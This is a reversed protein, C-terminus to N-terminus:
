FTITNSAIVIQDTSPSFKVRNDITLVEGSFKNVSPLIVSNITFNAGEKGITDGASLVTNDLYGLLIADNNADYDEYKSIVLFRNSDKTLIDNIAISGFGAQSNSGIALIASSGIGLRLNTRSNFGKPNKVLCVQRFSNDIAQRYITDKFLTTRFLITKAYLESIADSGHGDKPPLVVDLVADETAFGDIVATAITYGVGANIVNIKRISGFDDLEAEVEAGSGDGIITVTPTGVYGFGRNKLYVAYIAGPIATIEVTSQNSEISGVGFDLLISAEQFGPQFQTDFDSDVTVSAYTYGIGPKVVRIQEIEGNSNIIPAIEANNKRTNVRFEFGSGPTVTLNTQEYRVVNSANPNSTVSVFQNSYGYGQNDITVGTAVGDTIEVTAIAKIGNPLDPDTFLLTISEYGDGGNIIDISEVVYPNEELYGDGDVVLNTYSFGTNEIIPEIIAEVSSVGTLTFVPPYSYGDGPESMAISTIIGEVVTVTGVVAPTGTEQHPLEIAITPSGTYGSGGNLIRFGTVAYSAKNYGFGQDEISYGVISGKSYFQTTLANTVPMLTTSLFKNRLTIPITYMYKWVYGDELTFPTNSTTTPKYVSPSNNNNDLCKYVHYQDTLAYFQATDISTAGNFSADNLTYERYMDFVFGLTWDIRPIVPAVDNADIQKYLVANNRVGIEYEYSDIAQEIVTEDDISFTVDGSTVHAETVIFETESVISEVKTNETFAGAGGSKTVLQGVLFGTTSGSTLTVTNSNAVLTATLGTISFWPDAKGFTYYYKSINSAIESIVSKILGTKFSFKLLSTAM